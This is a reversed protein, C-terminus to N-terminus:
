CSETLNSQMEGKFQMRHRAPNHRRAYQQTQIMTINRPAAAQAFVVNFVRQLNGNRQCRRKRGNTFDTMTGTRPPILITVFQPGMGPYRKARHHAKLTLLERLPVSKTRREPVFIVYELRQRAGLHLPISKAIVARTIKEMDAADAPKALSKCEGLLTIENDLSISAVDWESQNGQWYRGASQWQRDFLGLRPVAMRCLTEWAQARLHPWCADLLKLRAANNATRLRGRHPAVVNFWLRLFPDALHYLAKKSRKEKEGYPVERQIYGLLQLQQLSRSISTAATSSSRGIPRGNSRM